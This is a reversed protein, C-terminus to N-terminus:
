NKLFFSLLPLPLHFICISPKFFFFFFFFLCVRWKKSVFSVDGVEGGGGGRRRRRRSREGRWEEEEEEEEEEQERGGERRKKESEPLKRRREEIGNEGWQSGDCSRQSECGGLDSGFGFTVGNIEGFREEGSPFGKYDELKKVEKEKKKRQSEKITEM